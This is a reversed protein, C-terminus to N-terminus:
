KVELEIALLSAVEGEVWHIVASGEAGRGSSACSGSQRQKRTRMDQAPASSDARERNKDQLQHLINAQPTPATSIDTPIETSVTGTIAVCVGAHVGGGLKQKQKLVLVRWGIAWDGFWGM